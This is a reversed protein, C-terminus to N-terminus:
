GVQDAAEARDPAVAVPQEDKPKRFVHATEIMRRGVEDSPTMELMGALTKLVAEDELTEPVFQLGGHFWRALM